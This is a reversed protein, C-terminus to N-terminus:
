FLLSYLLFVLVFIVVAAIIIEVTRRSRADESAHSYSCYDHVRSGEVYCPKNCGPLRCLRPGLGSGLFQPSNSGTTTHRAFLSGQTAAQNM